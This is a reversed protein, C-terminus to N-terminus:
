KWDLKLPEGEKKVTFPVGQRFSEPVLNVVEPYETTYEKIMKGTAKTAQVLITVEGLPAAPVLIKGDAIQGQAILGEKDKSIVQLTGKEVPVGKIIITGELKTSPYEFAKEGCGALFLICSMMLCVFANFRIM